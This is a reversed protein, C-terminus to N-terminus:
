DGLKELEFDFGGFDFTEIVEIAKKNKEKVALVTRKAGVLDSAIKMGKYVQSFEHELLQKDVNILPECEAGNIILTDISADLKVHTPFGAGGAGVVGADKILEIERAAM